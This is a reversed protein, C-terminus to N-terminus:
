ITKGSPVFPNQQYYRSDFTNPTYGYASAWYDDSDQRVTAFQEDSTEDCAHSSNTSVLVVFLFLNLKLMKALSCLDECELQLSIIGSKYIGWSTPSKSKGPLVQLKKKEVALSQWSNIYDTSSYETRSNLRQGRQHFFPERM